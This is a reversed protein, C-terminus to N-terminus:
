DVDVSYILNPLEFNIRTKWMFFETNFKLDLSSNDNQYQIGAAGEKTNESKKDTRIQTTIDLLSASQQITLKNFPKKWIEVNSQDISNERLVCLKCILM